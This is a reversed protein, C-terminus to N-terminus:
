GTPVMRRVAVIVGKPPLPGTLVVGHSQSAQVWSTANLAIGVHDIGGDYDTDLFVLDGTRIPESWFDVASGQRAQSASHHVLTVGVRGYAAMALGSCDFADPGATFFRYPKGVQALAYAVVADTPSAPAASPADAGAPLALRMGPMILSTVSMDNVALLARLSVHYRTAIGSSTDGAVVTHTAGSTAGSSWDATVDPVELRQGPVILSTLTLGNVSLLDDLPVGLRAAIGILTDGENVVYVDSGSADAVGSLSLTAVGVAVGAILRTLRVM